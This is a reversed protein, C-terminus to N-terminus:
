AASLPRSASVRACWQAPPRRRADRRAPAPARTARGARRPTPRRASINLRWYDLTFPTEDAACQLTLETTFAHREPPPLRALHPRICVTTIFEAFETPSDFRVPAPELTVEVSEFGAARLRHRTTDEDAYHWPESWEEFYRSFRPERSLG